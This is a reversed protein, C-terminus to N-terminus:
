RRVQAGTEQTEISEAIARATRQRMITSLENIDGFYLAKASCKTACVPWLGQDVRDKCYDCKTIKKTRPNFQPAGYPCAEICTKCGICADEDVFVIGDDRKQMAGTPCVSVCSPKECHFCRMAVFTTRLRGGVVKPGVQIIRVRRPGVPLDHELKCHVECGFCAICREQDHIMNWQNSSGRLTVRAERSEIHVSKEAFGEEAKNIFDSM